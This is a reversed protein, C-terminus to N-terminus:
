SHARHSSWEPRRNKCVDGGSMSVGADGLEASPISALGLECTSPHYLCDRPLQESEGANDHQRDFPDDSNEHQKRKNAERRCQRCRCTVSSRAQRHARPGDYSARDPSEGTPPDPPTRCRRAAARRELYNKQDYINVGRRRALGAAETYATLCAHHVFGPHVVGFIGPPPFVSYSERTVDHMFVSLRVSQAVALV